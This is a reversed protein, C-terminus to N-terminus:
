IFVISCIIHSINISTYFILIINIIRHSIILQKLSASQIRIYLALLLLAPFVIKVIISIYTNSVIKIMIPNVEIFMGTNLLYLTFLIDLVNLLYLSFIKYKLKLLKNSKLDHLM